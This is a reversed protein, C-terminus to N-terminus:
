QATKSKLYSHMAGSQGPALSSSYWLSIVLQGAAVGGESGGLGARRGRGPGVEGICRTVGCWRGGGALLGEVKAVMVMRIMLNMMMMVVMVM